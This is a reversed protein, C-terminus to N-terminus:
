PDEEFIQLFRVRTTESSARIKESPRVETEPRSSYESGCETFVLSIDVGEGFSTVRSSM